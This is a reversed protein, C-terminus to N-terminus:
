ACSSSRGRRRVSASMYSEVRRPWGRRRRRTCGARTDKIESRTTRRLGEGPCLPWAWACRHGAWRMRMVMYTRQLVAARRQFMNYIRFLQKPSSYVPRGGAPVGRIQRMRERRRDDGRHGGVHRQDAANRRLDERVEVLDRRRRAVPVQARLHRAAATNRSFLAVGPVSRVTGRPAVAAPQGATNPARQGDLISPPRQMPILSHELAVVLVVRGCIKGPAGHYQRTSGTM